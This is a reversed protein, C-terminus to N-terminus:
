GVSSAHCSVLWTYYAPFQTPSLLFLAAVALACRECIEIPTKAESRVIWIIWGALLSGVVGRTVLQALEGSSSFLEVAPRCCWLILMFLADNMEWHAGYARFGSTRDLGAVLPPLFLLAVIGAFLGLAPILKRPHGAWQRLLMPLLLVPWIKAGTALALCCASWRPKARIALLMWGLEGRTRSMESLRVACLFVLGAAVMIGVTQPLPLDINPREYAFQASVLLLAVHLGILLVGM